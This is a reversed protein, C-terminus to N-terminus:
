AARFVTLTQPATQSPLTICFTEPASHIQRQLANDRIVFTLSM